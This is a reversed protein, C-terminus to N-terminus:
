APKRVPVLSRLGALGGPRFLITLVVLVGFVVLFGPGVLPELVFPALYLFVTGVIAGLPSGLGGVIVMFLLLFMNELGFVPPNIVNDVYAYGIGALGALASAVTFAIVKTRAIDVGMAAAASSNDRLARCARGFYSQDLRQLVLLTFAVLLVLLVTYWPGRVTLGFVAPLRYGAIGGTGGTLNGGENLVVTVLQAFALTALALYFGELRTAPIAVLLALVTCLIIALVFAVGFPLGLKVSLIVIAYAGIGAFAFHSFAVQGAVGFLFNFSLALAIWILMKRYVDTAYGGLMFAVASACAIGASWLVPRYLRRM